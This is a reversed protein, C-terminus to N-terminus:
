GSVSESERMERIERQLFYNLATRILAPAAKLDWYRNASSAVTDTWPHSRPEVSPEGDYECTRMAAVM